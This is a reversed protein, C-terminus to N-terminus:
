RVSFTELAFPNQPFQNPKKKVGRMKSIIVLNSSPFTACVCPRCVPSGPSAALLFFLWLYAIQSFHLPYIRYQETFTTVICFRENHVWPPCGLARLTGGPDSPRCVGSVAELYVEKMQFHFFKKPVKLVRAWVKCKQTLKDNELFTTYLHSSNHEDKKWLLKTQWCIIHCVEHPTIYPITITVINMMITMISSMMMTNFLINVIGKVALISPFSSSRGFSPSTSAATKANTLDDNIIITTLM